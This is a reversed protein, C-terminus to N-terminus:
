PAAPELELTYFSRSTAPDRHLGTVAYRNRLAWQFHRRIASQWVAATSPSAALVENFDTPIEIWIARPLEAVGSFPAEPLPTTDTLILTNPSKNPASQGPVDITPTTPCVVVFRDTALGHHLPSKTTGYMDPVYEVVRAGLRNLNFHANKAILPDFTWYMSRIRLRALETRQYDKLLRGIGLNRAGERVGLAHSWHVIEGNKVGTLGFVFGLLERDGSFAGLVLGGVNPVVQLLSAPVAEDYDSGWVERQLAVCADYDEHSTLPRIRVTARNVWALTDTSESRRSHSRTDHTVTDSFLFSSGNGLRWFRDAGLM